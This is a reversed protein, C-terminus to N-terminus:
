ENCKLITDMPIWPNRHINTSIWLLFFYDIICYKSNRMLKRQQSEACKRCSARKFGHQIGRSDPPKWNICVLALASRFHIGQFIWLGGKTKLQQKCRHLVGMHCENNGGMAAGPWLYFERDWVWIVQNVVENTLVVISAWICGHIDIFISQLVFIDV